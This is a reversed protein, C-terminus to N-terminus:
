ARKEISFSNYGIGIEIELLRQQLMELIALFNYVFQVKNESNKAIQHFDLKKNLEILDAIARKQQEITYPYKIVTHTVEKIRHTFNFMMKEYMMMLKYLDFSALEEDTRDKKRAIKNDAEINGRSHLRNRNEELVRMEECIEKFQKYLILKQTLEKKLDIENEPDDLDPRPLLMKAKIRMLTSAVFIFESALEINLSQMKQIYDLFEDTIKSIPIDHINLEDREIFFLLLDFPGEFQELKIEYATTQM